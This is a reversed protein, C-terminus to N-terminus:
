FGFAIQSEMASFSEPQGGGCFGAIVDYSDVLAGFSMSRYANSEVDAVGSTCFLHQMHDRSEPSPLPPPQSSPARWLFDIANPSSPTVHNNNTNGASTSEFLDDITCFENKCVVPSRNDNGDSYCSGNVTSTQQLQTLVEPQQCISTLPATTSTVASSVYRTMVDGSSANRRFFGATIETEQRGADDDVDTVDSHVFIGAPKRDLYQDLENSDVDSLLEVEPDFDAGPAYQSSPERHQQQRFQLLPADGNGTQISVVSPLCSHHSTPPCLGPRSYKCNHPWIHPPLSSLFVPYGCSVTTPNRQLNDYPSCLYGPKTSMASNADSCGCCGNNSYRCDDEVNVDIEGFSDSRFHDVVATPPPFSAFRMRRSVTPLQQQQQQYPVLEQHLGDAACSRAVTPLRFDIQGDYFDDVPFARTPYDGLSM